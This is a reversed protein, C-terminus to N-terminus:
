EHLLLYIFFNFSGWHKYLHPKYVVLTLTVLIVALFTSVEVQKKQM